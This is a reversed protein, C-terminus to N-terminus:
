LKEKQKARIQSEKYLQEWVPINEKNSNNGSPLGRLPQYFPSRGVQPQFTYEDNMYDGDKIKQKM